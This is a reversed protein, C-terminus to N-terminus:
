AIELGAANVVSPSLRASGFRRVAVLAALAALFATAGGFSLAIRTGLHDAMWGSLVSGLPMVGLCVVGFLAMVRGSMMPESGLQLLSQAGALFAFSTGGWLCTAVAVLALNPAVSVLIASAGFALATRVLFVEDIAHRRAVVLSGVLSGSGLFTALLAYTTENGHLVRKAMLPLLVNWNLSLMSVALLLLLTVRLQQNTWVYRLSDRIQGRARVLRETPFTVPGMYAITVLVGIFSAANALFCWGIGVSAILLAAVAPGIIRSVQVVASNL